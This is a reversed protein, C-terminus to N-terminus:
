FRIRIESQKIRLVLVGDVISGSIGMDEARFDMSGDGAHETKVSVDLANIESTSVHISISKETDEDALFVKQQKYFVKMRFNGLNFMSYGADENKVYKTEPPLGEINFVKNELPVALDELTLDAPIGWRTRKEKLELEAKRAAASMEGESIRKLGAGLESRPKESDAKLKEAYKTKVVVWRTKLWEELERNNDAHKIMEEYFRLLTQYRSGTRELAAGIETPCLFDKWNYSSTKGASNWGLINQTIFEELRKRESVAFDEPSSDSHAIKKVVDCKLGYETAEDEVFKVVDSWVAPSTSAKRMITDITLARFEPFFNSTLYIWQQIYKDWESHSSIADLLSEAFVPRKDQSVKDKFIAISEDMNGYALNLSFADDFRKKKILSKSVQGITEISCVVGADKGTKEWEAIITDDNDKIRSLWRIKENVDPSVSARARHYSPHETRGSKEWCHIADSFSGGRYYYEAIVDWLEPFGKDAVKRTATAVRSWDHHAKKLEARLRREIEKVINRWSLEYPNVYNDLDLNLIHKPSVSENQENHMFGALERRLMYKGTNDNMHLTKLKTWSGSKWFCDSARDKKGVAEFREGADRWKRRLSLSEAECLAAKEANGIKSYFGAARELLGPDGAQLGKDELEQAIRGPDNEEMETLNNLDGNVIWGIKDYWRSKENDSEEYFANSHQDEWYTKTFYKWLNENGEATDIIFLHEKARTASVYLKNFFYSAKFLLNENPNENELLENMINESYEGFKYLIVRNFELGKAAGASMINPIPKTEDTPITVMDRLIDDNKVFEREQGSEVPVIIITQELKLSKIGETIGPSLIFKSPAVGESRKWWEQPTLEDNGLLFRRIFQVLNAFRVIAPSSRFGQKLTIDNPSVDSANYEKFKEHFIGKLRKWSFGTPNLTQFPDGAFAFPLINVGSLNYESFKSLKLLLEIEIRTFDQAEDCFIVPYSILRGGRRLIYRVIDQDDWYGKNGTLIRYWRSWVSDHIGKFTEQDVSKDRAPIERYAEPRLFEKCSYGKIFTRIVHWVLEPSYRNREPLRCDEAYFCKFQYFDIKMADVYRQREEDVLLNRFLFDQFPYFYKGVQDVSFEKEAYRSNYRLLDQVSKMAEKLLNDNYTLFLPNYPYGYQFKQFCYEAFLYFLMTSKGSGAQGNIFVPYSVKKLIKDEDASLALNAAENFEIKYWVSDDAVVWEPYARRAYPAIANTDSVDKFECNGLISEVKQIDPEGYFHAYLFYVCGGRNTPQFIEYLIHCRDETVWRVDRNSLPVYIQSVRLDEQNNIISVLLNYFKLWYNRFYEQNCGSVWEESEYISPFEDFSSIELWRRLKEPIPERHSASERRLEEEKIKKIKKEIQAFESAPLPKDSLWDRFNTEDYVTGDRSFIRRICYVPEGSVETKQIIMRWSGRINKKFLGPAGRFPELMNDVDQPHRGELDEIFRDISSRIGEPISEEFDRCRYVFAM